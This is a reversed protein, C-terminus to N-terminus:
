MKSFETIIYEKSVPHNEPNYQYYALCHSLNNKKWLVIAFNSPSNLDYYILISDVNKNILKRYEKKLSDVFGENDPYSPLSDIRESNLEVIQNFATQFILLLGVVFYIIKQSL